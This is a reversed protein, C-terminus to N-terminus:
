VLEAPWDVLIQGTALDVKSLHQRTAPVWHERAGQQVVMVAGGPTAVFHRVRGLDIGELNKVGLGVLDAEYFEKAKLPPLASRAVSISAGLLLAAANRDEIGELRAVLDQGHERGEALRREVRDGAGRLNWRQYDLLRAPPDVFSEVHVWGRVGYPSGIRGVELWEAATM